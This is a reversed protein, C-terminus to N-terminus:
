ADEIGLKRLVEGTDRLDPVYPAGQLWDGGARRHGVLLVRLDARRAAELGTPSDELAWAAAAPVGLNRLALRYGAPDPKVATVDERAVILSFAQELKAGRLVTEVNSRNTGTVIALRVQGAARRVLAAIGPYVRPVDALLALTQEQKYRTWGEVDGDAIGRAQFVERLFQRDDIEASRGCTEAPVDWGMRAFTREWAAIHVNETDALVGDFDFLLAQLKMPREERPRPGRAPGFPQGPTPFKVIFCGPPDNRGAGGPRDRQFPIRLSIIETGKRLRVTVGEAIEPDTAVPQLPDGLLVLALDYARDRRLVPDDVTREAHGLVVAEKRFRKADGPNAAREGPNKRVVVIRLTYEVLGDTRHVATQMGLM